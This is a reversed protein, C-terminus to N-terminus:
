ATGTRYSWTDDVDALARYRGAVFTRPPPPRSASRTRSGASRPAPTPPHLAHAIYPVAQEMRQEDTASFAPAGPERHTYVAGRPRDGEWVVVRLAHHTHLPRLITDYLHSDAPAKGYRSFDEVVPGGKRLETFGFVVDRERKNCFETIYIEPIPIISPSDVCLNSPRDQDDSWAFLLTHKGVGGRPCSAHGHGAAITTRVPASSRGPAPQPCGTAPALPPRIGLSVPKAEM